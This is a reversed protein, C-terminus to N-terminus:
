QLFQGYGVLPLKQQRLNISIFVHAKGPSVLGFAKWGDDGVAVTLDNVPEMADLGFAKQAFKQISENALM